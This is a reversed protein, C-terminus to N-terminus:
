SKELDVLFCVRGDVRFRVNWGDILVGYIREGGEHIAPRLDQELTERILGAETKHLSDLVGAKDVVELISPREAAWGGQVEQIADAYPVYPKVDYIPTGDVLDGGGVKLYVQGGGCVVEELRVASLGLGNPRFPSRSAFVGVREDGGLRPPRVTLAGQWEAQDFGFVLWVHSFEELTRIAEEKALSGVFEVRGWASEVLGAQRPVGFKEGYCGRYIAVPEIMKQM